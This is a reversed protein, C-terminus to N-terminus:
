LSAGPFLSMLRKATAIRDRDLGKAFVPDRRAFSRVFDFVQAIPSGASQLAAPAAPGIIECRLKDVAGILYFWDDPKEDDFAYCIAHENRGVGCFAFAVLRGSRADELAKELAIIMTKQNSNM